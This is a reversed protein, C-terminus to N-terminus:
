QKKDENPAMVAGIGEAIDDPINHDNLFKVRTILDTMATRVSEVKTQDVPRDAVMYGNHDAAVLFIQGNAHGLWVQSADAFGISPSGKHIAGIGRKFKPRLTFKWGERELQSITVGIVVDLDPNEEELAYEKVDWNCASNITLPNDTNISEQCLCGRKTNAFPCGKAIHTKLYEVIQEKNLM